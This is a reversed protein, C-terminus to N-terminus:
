CRDMGNASIFINRKRFAIPSEVLLVARLDPNDPGYFFPQPLYYGKTWKPVALNYKRCLYEAVSALYVPIKQHKEGIPPHLVMLERKEKDASKFEDIFDGIAISSRVGKSIAVSTARISNKKKLTKM